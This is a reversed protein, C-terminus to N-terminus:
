RLNGCHIKIAEAAFEATGVGGQKDINEKFREDSVYMEALCSFIEDTCNYYNDTIFKQLKFVLAQAKEDGPSLNKIEGLRAFIEMMGDGLAKEDERSRNKTKEACEKYAATEGWRSKAEEAYNNFSM